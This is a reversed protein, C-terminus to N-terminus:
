GNFIFDTVFDKGLHFVMKGKKNLIVLEALSMSCSGISTTKYGWPDILNLAEITLTGYNFSAHAEVLTPIITVRKNYSPAALCMERVLRKIFTM